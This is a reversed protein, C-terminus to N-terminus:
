KGQGNCTERAKGSMGSKLLCQMESRVTYLGPVEFDVSQAKSQIRAYIEESKYNPIIGYHMM